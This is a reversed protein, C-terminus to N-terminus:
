LLLVLLARESVYAHPAHDQRLLLLLLLFILLLLLLLFPLLLLLLLLLFLLLFLLLAAAAPFRALSRRPRCLGQATGPAVVAVVLWFPRLLSMVLFTPVLSRLFISM